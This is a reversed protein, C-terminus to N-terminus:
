SWMGLLFRFCGFKLSMRYRFEEKTFINQAAILFFLIALSFFVIFANDLTVCQAALSGPSIATISEKYHWVFAISGNPSVNPVVM